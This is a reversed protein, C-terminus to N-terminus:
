RRFFFSLNGVRFGSSRGEDCHSRHSHCRCESPYRTIWQGVPDGCRTYGSVEYYSYIPLGCPTYGALRRATSHADATTTFALIGITALIAFTKKM